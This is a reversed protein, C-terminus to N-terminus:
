EIDEEETEEEENEEDEIDQLYNENQKAIKQNIQAAKKQFKLMIWAAILLLIIFQAM